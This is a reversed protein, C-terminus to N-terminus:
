EIMKLREEYRGGKFEARLWADIMRLARKEDCFDAAFVLVNCNDDERASRAINENWALGAYIGSFRNAAISMGIGSGCLLIGRDAQQTLINQCVLAAFIPYDSREPDFAGCDNWAIEYGGIHLQAKLQEKLKYGHHDTGIAIKLIM